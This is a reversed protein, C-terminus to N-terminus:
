YEHLIDTRSRDRGALNAVPENSPPTRPGTGAPARRGAWRKGSWPAGAARAWGARPPFFGRPPPPSFAAAVAGGQPRAAPRLHLRLARVARALRARQGLVDRRRRLRSQVADGRALFGGPGSGRDGAAM